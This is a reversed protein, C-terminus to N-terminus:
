PKHAVSIVYDLLELEKKMRPQDGWNRSIGKFASKGVKEQYGPSAFKTVMNQRWPEWTRDRISEATAGTFGAEALQELYTASNHWNADETGFRIWSLPGSQILASRHSM